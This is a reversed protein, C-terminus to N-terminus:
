ADVAPEREGVAAGKKGIGAWLPQELSSRQASKSSSPTLSRISPTSSLRAMLRGAEYRSTTRQEGGGGSGGRRTADLLSRRGLRLARRAAVTTAALVESPLGTTTPAMCWLEDNALHVMPPRRPLRGRRRQQTVRSMRLPHFSAADRDMLAVPHTGTWLPLCRCSSSTMPRGSRLRSSLHL